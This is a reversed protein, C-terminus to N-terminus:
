MSMTYLDHFYGNLCTMAVVFSLRNGNTLATADSSFFEDHSGWIESSGHGIYDVLISGNIIASSVAAGGTTTFEIASKTWSAPLLPILSAATGGFDFDTTVAT